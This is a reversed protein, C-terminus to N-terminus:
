ENSRSQHCLWEATRGSHHRPFVEIVLSRNRESPKLALSSELGLVTLTCDLSCIHGQTGSTFTVHALTLMYIACICVFIYAYVLM